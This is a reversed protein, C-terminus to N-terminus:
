SVKVVVSFWSKVIKFEKNILYGDLHIFSKRKIADSQFVQNQLFLGVFFKLLYICINFLSSYYESVIKFLPNIMNYQQM